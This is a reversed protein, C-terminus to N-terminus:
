RRNQREGGRSLTVTFTSGKGRESEVAISGNHANIIRKSIALGLGSGLEGTKSQAKGRYFDDFIFPIDENEIGVGTDSVSVRLEHNSDEVAISIDSGVESYKIANGIINLFVELLTGEDGDVPAVSLPCHTLIHVNKGKAREFLLEQAKSLLAPIDIPKFRERLQRMDISTLEVWSSIMQLMSDVRNKIRELMQKQEPALEGASGALFAYLTQQVAFLPSKLEHSVISTFNERILEKERRLAIADLLLRRKEIGRKAIFRLEDSSFPKPLFDYAGRKMAEVATDITAYGTIVVAVITTDIKQLRELVEMGSIGPMKLDVFVLDPKHEEVIKLGANGDPATYIRYDCKSLVLTCSDRVIEEDDIILIVPENSV